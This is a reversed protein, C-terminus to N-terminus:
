ARFAGALTPVWAALLLLALVILGRDLYRGAAEISTRLRPLGLWTGHRGAQAVVYALVLWGLTHHAFSARLDGHLASVWSRTLGCGPCPIGTVRKFGCVEPLRVGAISLGVDGGPAVPAPVLAAGLLGLCVGLVLLHLWRTTAEAEGTSRTSVTCHGSAPAAATGDGGGTM